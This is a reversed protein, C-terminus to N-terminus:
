CSPESSGLLESDADNELMELHYESLALQMRSVLEVAADRHKRKVGLVLEGANTFPLDKVAEISNLRIFIRTRFWGAKVSVEAIDAFSCFVKRLDTKIAGILADRIEYQLSLGTKATSLIGAVHGFGEYVEFHFPVSIAIPKM